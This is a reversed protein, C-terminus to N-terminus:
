YSRLLNYFFPGHSIVGQNHMLKPKWIVPKSGETLRDTICKIVPTKIIYIYIYLILTQIGEQIVIPDDM